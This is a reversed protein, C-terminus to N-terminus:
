LATQTGVAAGLPELSEEHVVTLMSLDLDLLVVLAKTSAWVRFSMM